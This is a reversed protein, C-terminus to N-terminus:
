HDLFKRTRAKADATTVADGANACEDGRVAGAACAAVVKHAEDLHAAFYQTARPAAVAGTGIAAGQSPPALSPRLAFGAAFGIVLALLAIVVTRGHM